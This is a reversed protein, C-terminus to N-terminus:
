ASLLGPWGGRWVRTNFLIAKDLYMLGAELQWPRARARGRSSENIDGECVDFETM